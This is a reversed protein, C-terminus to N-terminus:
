LPKDVYKLSSSNSEAWTLGGGGTCAPGAHRDSKKKAVSANIDLLRWTYSRWVVGFVALFAFSALFFEHPM